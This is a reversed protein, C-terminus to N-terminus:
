KDPVYIVLYEMRSYKIHESNENVPCNIGRVRSSLKPPLENNKCDNCHDNVADGILEMLGENGSSSRINVICSGVGEASQKCSRRYEEKGQSLLGGSLSKQMEM